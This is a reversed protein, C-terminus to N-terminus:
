WKLAEQRDEELGALFAASEPDGRAKRAEALKVRQGEWDPNNSGSFVELVENATIM